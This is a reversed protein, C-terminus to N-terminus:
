FYTYASKGLWKYLLEVMVDKEGDIESAKKLYTEDHYKESAQLLLPYFDSSNYPGIQQYTWKKEKLAYPM